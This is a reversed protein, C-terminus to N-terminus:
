RCSRCRKRSRAPLFRLRGDRADRRRLYGRRGERQAPNGARGVAADRLARRMTGRAAPRGALQRGRPRRRAGAGVDGGAAIRENSPPATRPDRRGTTQPDERPALDAMKKGALYDRTEYVGKRTMEDLRRVIAQVRELFKRISDLRENEVVKESEASSADRPMARAARSQQHDIRASQQDRARPQGRNRRRDRAAACPAHPPHRSRLRDIRSRRRQRRSDAVGSIVVPILDGNKNRFETEFNSIRGTDSSERMARM